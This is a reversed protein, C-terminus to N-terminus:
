TESTIDMMLAVLADEDKMESLLDNAVASCSPKLAIRLTQWTDFVGGGSKDKKDFQTSLSDLIGQLVHLPLDDLLGGLMVFEPPPSPLANKASTFAASVGIKELFLRLLEEENLFRPNRLLSQLVGEVADAVFRTTGQRLRGVVIDITEQTLICQINFIHAHCNIRM